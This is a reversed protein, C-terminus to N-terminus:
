NIEITEVTVALGFYVIYFALKIYKIWTYKKLIDERMLVFNNELYAMFVVVFLTTCVAEFFLGFKSPTMVIFFHFPNNYVM